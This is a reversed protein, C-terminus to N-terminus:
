ECGQNQPPREVALKTEARQQHTKRAKKLSVYVTFYTISKGTGLLRTLPDAPSLFLKSPHPPSASSPLIPNPPNTSPSSPPILILPNPSSSSSQSLGLFIPQPPNSPSLLTPQPCFPQSLIPHPCTPNASSLLISQPPYASSLLTPQPCTPYASSQSLVPSNASSLQSLVPLIRQPYNRIFSVRQLTSDRSISKAKSSM